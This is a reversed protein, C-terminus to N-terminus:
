PGAILLAATQGTDSQNLKLVINKDTKLPQTHVVNVPCRPDPTEYNLTVPIQGTELATLSALLEVAGGGAGLNGFYSKMALVPVDGLTDRIAQAEHADNEISSEGHANVHSIDEPRVGTRKLAIEIARRYGSGDGQTNFRRNEYTSAWGLIRGLIKAGRAEAHQRSELLMVASGEGYVIGDRDADFPRSAAAPNDKRRSLRDAALFAIWGLGFRSGTGGTLMADALGRRIVSTAEAMALLSSAEGLTISNNPGRADQVIGVHCAPYNPLYKLMWLPYIKSMAAEGWRSIDLQGDVMCARLADELDSVESFIMDSGFEVGLREPEIAGKELGAHQMAMDAAAYATQIDRSMVKLSKRPRVYQKADFDKIEAGFPAPLHTTDLMTLPAVVSQAAALRSRYAELGVGLPSVVGLGTIVVERQSM